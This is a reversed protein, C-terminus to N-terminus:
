LVSVILLAIVAIVVSTGLTVAHEKIRAKGAAPDYCRGNKANVRMEYVQGNALRGDEGKKVLEQITDSIRGGDYYGELTYQCIDLKKNKPQRSTLRATVQCPVTSSMKSSHKIAEVILMVISYLGWMIAVQLM